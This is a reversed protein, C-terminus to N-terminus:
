AKVRPKGNRWNLTITAAADGSGSDDAWIRCRQYIYTRRTGDPYADTKAIQIEDVPKGDFFQTELSDILDDVRTNTREVSVTGSHGSYVVYTDKERSGLLARTRVEAQQNVSFGTADIAGIPVGAKFVRIQVDSSLVVDEAM